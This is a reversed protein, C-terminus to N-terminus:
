RLLAVATITVILWGAAIWLWFTLTTHRARRRTRGPQLLPM